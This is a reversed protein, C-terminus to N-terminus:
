RLGSNDSLRQSDGRVEAFSLERELSRGGVRAHIRGRRLRDELVGRPENALEVVVEVRAQAGQARFLVRPQWFSRARDLSQPRVHVGIEMEALFLGGTEGRKDGQAPVALRGDLELLARVLGLPLPGVGLHKPAGARYQDFVARGAADVQQVAIRQRRQSDDMPSGVHTDKAGRPVQGRGSAPVRHRPNEINEDGPQFVLEVAVRLAADFRNIETGGLSKGRHWRGALQRSRGVLFPSYRKVAAPDFQQRRGGRKVDGDFLGGFLRTEIRGLRAPEDVAVVAEVGLDFAEQVVLAALCCLYEQAIEARVGAGEVADFGQAGAVQAKASDSGAPKRAMDHIPEPEMM